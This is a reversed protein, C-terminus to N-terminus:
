PSAEDPRVRQQMYGSFPITAFIAWFFLRKIGRVRLQLAQKRRLSCYKCLAPIETLASGCRLATTTSAHIFLM